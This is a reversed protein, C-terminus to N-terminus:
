RDLMLLLNDIESIKDQLRKIELYHFEVDKQYGAKKSLLESKPVSVEQIRKLTETDVIEYREDM